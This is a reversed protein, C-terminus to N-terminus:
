AAHLQKARRYYGMGEWVRLVDIQEAAALRFVNPFAAIFRSYYGIVTAVQTQQLMIESIWVRYPDPSRRWPLDRKHATYWTLLRRRISTRQAPAFYPPSEPKEANRDTAPM